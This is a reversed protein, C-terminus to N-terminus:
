RAGHEYTIFDKETKTLRTHLDATLHKVALLPFFTQEVGEGVSVVLDSEAPGDDDV